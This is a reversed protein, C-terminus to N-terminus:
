PDSYFRHRGIETVFTAKQAWGPEAEQPNFYLVSSRVTDSGGLAEDWARQCDQVDLRSDDAKAAPIRDSYANWCSFQLPSLVTGIFTGDSSYKRRTRNRIVEAVALKGAYPEGDAEGIITLVAWTDPSVLLAM